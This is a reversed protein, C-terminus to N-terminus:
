LSTRTFGNLAVRYVFNAQVSMNTGDPNKGTKYSLLEWGDEPQMDLSETLHDLDLNNAHFFPSEIVPNAQYQSYIDYEEERWDFPNPQAISGAESVPNDPNTSISKDPCYQAM